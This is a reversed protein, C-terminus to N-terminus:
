VANTKRQSIGTLKIGVLDMKTTVFPLIEENKISLYYKLTYTYIYIIYTHIYIYIYTYEDM